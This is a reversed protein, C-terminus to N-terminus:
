SRPPLLFSNIKIVLFRLPFWHFEALHFSDLNELVMFLMQRQLYTSLETFCLPRFNLYYKSFVHLFNDCFNLWEAIISVYRHAFLIGSKPIKWVQPIFHGKFVVNQTTTRPFNESSGPQFRLMEHTFANTYPLKVKDEMSPQRNSGVVDDIEQQM